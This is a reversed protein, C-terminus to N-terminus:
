AAGALWEDPVTTLDGAGLTLVLDGARVLRPVHLVLDARTPLYVVELEPHADLVARLVLRGSVGAIPLEDFGYVDTLVVLDAGTFADAFDRWLAATRTFRHPQFVVVVRGWGGEGAADVMAAVETPLHAYDDVYTVGDRAGRLEFRRAVGEYAALARQVSVFPVGLEVAMAAAGAANTANHRGPVPVEIAGLVTDGRELVFTVGARTGRYETIRYDATDAFGYTVAGPITRALRATVVDDVCLLNTGPVDRAFTAFAEELASVDGYHGLHDPEISTVIASEPALELFTGDSEDAEAVIWEGSQWAATAGLSTVDGGVLHSPDWGADRLILTLMATTTTKGHSGAVAVARRTAVIARQADARRMVPLNRAHAAIVEPNDDGIATSVIVLDADSPLNTAAHGVAVQVGLARLPALRPSDRIDSGSVRHGMAVLVTAIGSMAAGGIAVIHVVRPEGDLAGVHTRGFDLPGDPM